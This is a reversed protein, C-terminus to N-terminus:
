GCVVRRRNPFDEEVVFAYFKGIAVEKDFDSNDAECFEFDMVTGTTKNFVIRGTCTMSECAYAYEVSEDSEVIKEYLWNM